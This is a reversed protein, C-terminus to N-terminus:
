CSASNANPPAERSARAQHPPQSHRSGAGMRSIRADRWRCLAEGGELSSRRNGDARLRRCVGGQPGPSSRPLRSEGLGIAACVVSDSRVWPPKHGVHSRSTARCGRRRRRENSPCRGDCGPLAQQRRDPCQRSPGSTLLLAVRENRHTKITKRQTANATPMSECCRAPPSALEAQDASPAACLCRTISM